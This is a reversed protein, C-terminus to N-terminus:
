FNVFERQFYPIVPLRLPIRVRRSLQALLSEAVRGIRRRSLCLIELVQRLLRLSIEDDVMGGCPYVLHRQFHGSFRQLSVGLAFCAQGYFGGGEGGV